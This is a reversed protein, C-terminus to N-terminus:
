HRTAVCVLDGKDGLNVVVLQESVGVLVLLVQKTLDLLGPIHATDGDAGGDIKAVFVAGALQLLDSLCKIMCVLPAHCGNQPAVKAVRAELFVANVVVGSGVKGSLGVVNPDGNSGIDDLLLQGGVVAAVVGNAKAFGVLANVVLEAGVAGSFKNAPLVGVAVHSADAHDIRAAGRALVGQM